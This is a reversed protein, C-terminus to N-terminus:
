RQDISDGIGAQTMQVYKSLYGQLALARATREERVDQNQIEMNESQM